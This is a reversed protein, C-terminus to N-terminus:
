LNKDFNVEFFDYGDPLVPGVVIGHNGAGYEIFRRAKLLKCHAVIISNPFEEDEPQYSLYKRFLKFFDVESIGTNYNDEEILCQLISIEMKKNEWM